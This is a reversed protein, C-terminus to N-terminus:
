LPEWRRFVTYRDLHDVLTRLSGNVIDLHSQADIPATSIFGPRRVHFQPFTNVIENDKLDPILRKCFGELHTGVDRHLHFNFDRDFRLLFVPHPLFYCRDHGIIKFESTMEFTSCGRHPGRVHM